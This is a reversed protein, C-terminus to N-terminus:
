HFVLDISESVEQGAVSDNYIFPIYRLNLGKVNMVLM